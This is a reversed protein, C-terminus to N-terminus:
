PYVPADRSASCATMPAANNTAQQRHRWGYGVLSLTGISVLVWASPEPIPTALYGHFVGAADTYSGVIEGVNNIRASFTNRSGPFDITSFVGESLLYAHFVEDAYQGLIQGANNISVADSFAVRPFDITSFMGESLLFGHTLSDSSRYGGVIQGADNIGRAFILSRPVPFIL